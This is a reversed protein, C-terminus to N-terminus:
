YFIVDETQLNKMAKRQEEIAKRRAADYKSNSVVPKKVKTKVKIIKTPKVIDEDEPWGKSNLEIVANMETKVQDVQIKVMDWFGELDNNKPRSVDDLACSINNECLGLFQKIKQSMLLNSKGVVAQIRAQGSEPAIPLLCEVQAVLRKISDCELNVLNIFYSGGHAEIDNGNSILTPKTKKPPSCKNIALKARFQPNLLKLVPLDAHENQIVTSTPINHSLRKEKTSVKVTSGYLRQITNVVISNPSGTRYDVTDTISCKTRFTQEDMNDNVTRVNIPSCDRSRSERKKSDYQTLSSTYGNICRSINVYSPPKAKYPPKRGTRIPHEDIYHDDTAERTSMVALVACLSVIQDAEDERNFKSM